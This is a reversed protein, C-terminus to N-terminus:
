RGSLSRAILDRQVENAGGYITTARSNLYFPMAILDFESGLPDLNSGVRQAELQLSLGELGALQTMLVSIRQTLETGMTKKMSPFAPDRAVAHGSLALKEFHDVSAADAELEGLERQFVADDAVTGGYASPTTGAAARVQELLRRFAPGQAAGGREHVLLHKAVTWGDNEAGV